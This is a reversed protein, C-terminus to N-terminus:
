VCCGGNRYDDAKPDFAHNVMYPPTSYNFENNQNGRHMLGKAHAAEHAMISAEACFSLNEIAVANRNIHVVPEGSQEYGQLRWDFYYLYNVLLIQPTRMKALVDAPTNGKMWNWPRGPALIYDAFCQSNLTANLKDQILKLKLRESDSCKEDCVLTITPPQSPARLPQSVIRNHNIVCGSVLIALILARM